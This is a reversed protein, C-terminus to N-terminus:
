SGIKSSRMIWKNPSSVEHGCKTAEFSRTLICACKGYTHPVYKVMSVEYESQSLSFPQAPTLPKSQLVEVELNLRTLYKKNTVVQPGSFKTLKNNKSKITTTKTKTQKNQSQKTQKQQTQKQKVQTQPKTPKHTQPITHKDRQRKTETKSYKAWPRKRSQAMESQNNTPHKRLLLWSLNFFNIRRNSIDQHDM